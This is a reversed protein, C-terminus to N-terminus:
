PQLRARFHAKIGQKHLVSESETLREIIVWSIVADYKSMKNGYLISLIRVAPFFTSLENFKPILRM